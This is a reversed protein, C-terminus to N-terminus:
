QIKEIWSKMDNEIKAMKEEHEKELEPLKKENDSIKERIESIQSKIESIRESITEKSDDSADSLRDKFKSLEIAKKNEKDQLDKIRKKMSAINAYSVLFTNKDDEKGTIKELDATEIKDSKYLNDISSKKSNYDSLKSKLDNLKEKSMKVDAEDTDSIEFNDNEIFLQYNKLYKM